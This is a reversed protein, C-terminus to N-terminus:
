KEGKVKIYKEIEPIRVPLFGPEGRLLECLPHQYLDDTGATIILANKLAAGNGDAVVKRDAELMIKRIVANRVLQLASVSAFALVAPLIIRLMETASMQVVLEGARYMEMQRILVFACLMVAAGQLARILYKREQNRRRSMELRQGVIACIEDEELFCIIGRDLVLYRRILGRLCIGYKDAASNGSRILIGEAKFGKDALIKMLRATLESEPLEQFHRRTNQLILFLARYLMLAFSVIVVSAADDAQVKELYSVCGLVIDIGAEILLISVMERNFFRLKAGRERYRDRDRRMLLFWDVAISLILSFAVFVSFGALGSGFSNGFRSLWGTFAGSLMVAMLIVLDALKRVLEDKLRDRRSKVCGAASKQACLSESWPPAPSRCARIRLVLAPLVLGYSMVAGALIIIQFCTVM